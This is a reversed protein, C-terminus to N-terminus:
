FDLLFSEGSMQKTSLKDETEKSISSETDQTPQETDQSLTEKHWKDLEELYETKIAEGPEGHKTLIGMLITHAEDAKKILGQFCKAVDTAEKNAQLLSPICGNAEQLGAIRRVLVEHRCRNQIIHMEGCTICPKGKRDALDVLVNSM